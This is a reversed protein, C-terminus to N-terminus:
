NGLRQRRCLRAVLEDLSYSTDTHVVLAPEDAALPELWEFQKELIALDAEAADKGEAHRRVVRERLAEPAAACALV